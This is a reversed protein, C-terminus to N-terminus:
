RINYLKITYNSDSFKQKIDELNAMMDDIMIINSIHEYQESVIKKLEDGKNQNFYIHEFNLNVSQLHRITLERINEDRATLLIIHCNSEQLRTIFNHVQNDVLEPDYTNMIKILDSNAMSEALQEDRTMVIYKKIKNKWWKLDIGDFRILTDDIDFVVLSEPIIEIQDFSTIPTIM